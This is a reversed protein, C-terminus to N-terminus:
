LEDQQSEGAADTVMGFFVKMMSARSSSYEVCLWHSSMPARM